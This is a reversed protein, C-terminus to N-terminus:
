SNEGTKWRKGWPWTMLMNWSLVSPCAV